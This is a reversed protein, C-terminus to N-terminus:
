RKVADLRDTSDRDLAVYGELVLPQARNLLLPMHHMRVRV